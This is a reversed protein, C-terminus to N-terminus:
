RALALIEDWVRHAVELKHLRPLSVDAGTTHLITVTNFDSAFVSDPESVDNVVMLDLRKRDLKRRANEVVHETEAAFGVVIPRTRAGRAETVDELIDVTPALAVSQTQDAKKIKERAAQAPRYDAVAAAMVLADNADLAGMVADRMEEAREVVVPRVGMMQPPDMTTILVVDAGRDRAAEALAVGMKGSSRNSIYRVPDIPERTGGATVTVRWDGLDGGRSLVHRLTDVIREPAAMRGEGTSGSALYGSEPEVVTWGRGRLTQVHEQTAPHRWMNTEMAPAYVVPAQTALATTAVMDDALGLALKAISHATAPAIVLVEAQHGITVHGIETEALLHFMDVAVQRHTIAQFSLPQVFQTADPTMVVDVVAGQQVLSSVVAVAKYAAISGTVGLAIRRGAM